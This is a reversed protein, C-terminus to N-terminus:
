NKKLVFGIYGYESSHKRYIEIEQQTIDLATNMHTDANSRLVSIKSLLPNYYDDWWDSTPLTYSDIVTYGNETAISRAAMATLMSPYAESWFNRSETSPENTLWCCETAVLFGGRKILSKWSKIAAEFDMAYASGEAWLLDFTESPFDLAEMPM